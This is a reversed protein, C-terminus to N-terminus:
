LRSTSLLRGYVITCGSHAIYIGSEDQETIPVGTNCKYDVLLPLPPLHDLTDVIPTGNTCEIYMGLRTFHPNTYSAVGDKVFKLSSAGGLDSIGVM